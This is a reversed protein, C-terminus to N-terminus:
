RVANLMIGTTEFHAANWAQIADAVFDREESVDSPSAILVNIVIATRLKKQRGVRESEKLFDLGSTTITINAADALGGNDRLPVCHLFGRALLDDVARLLKRDDQLSTRRALEDLQLHGPFAESLTALVNKEDSSLARPM